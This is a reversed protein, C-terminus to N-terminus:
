ALKFFEVLTNKSHSSVSIFVTIRVTLMSVLVWTTGSIILNLKSLKMKWFPSIFIRAFIAHNSHSIENSKESNRGITARPQEYASCNRCVIWRMTSVPCLSNQCFCQPLPPNPFKLSSASDLGIPRLWRVAIMSDTNIASTAPPMMMKRRSTSQSLSMSRELNWPQFFIVVFDEVHPIYM